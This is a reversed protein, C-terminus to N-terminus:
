FGKITGVAQMGSVVLYLLWLGVMICAFGTRTFGSGGLEGGMFKKAVLMMLCVSSCCMFVTVSFALAGRPTIYEEGRAAYYLSAVLWPLGLGLFVNVSNSGAIIRCTLDTGKRLDILELTLLNLQM